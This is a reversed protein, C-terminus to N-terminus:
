KPTTTMAKEAAERKAPANPQGSKEIQSMQKQKKAHKAKKAAAQQEPTMNAAAADAKAKDREATSMTKEAAERKAPANSQGAKEIQSMQKQKKAQKAKKAAAKEEATMKAKSAKAADREAQLKAEDVPQAPTKDQAVAAVSGLAFAGAVLAAFLKKMPILKKM